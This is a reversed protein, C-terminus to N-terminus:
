LCRHLWVRQYGYDADSGNCRIWLLRDIVTEITVWFAKSQLICDSINLKVSHDTRLFTIAPLQFIYLVWASAASNRAPNIGWKSSVGSSRSTTSQTGKVSRTVM